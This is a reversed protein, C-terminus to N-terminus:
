GGTDYQWLPQPIAALFLEPEKKKSQACNLSVTALLINISILILYKKVAVEM